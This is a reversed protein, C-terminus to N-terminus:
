SIGTRFVHVLGLGLLFSAILTTLMVMVAIDVGYVVPVTKAGLRGDEEIDVLDNPINQGGVEWFAIWVFVMLVFAPPPAPNVAFVAALAGLTLLYRNRKM